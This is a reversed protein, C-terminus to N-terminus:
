FYPEDVSRSCIIKAPQGYALVKEPLDQLLLSGAGLVTDAGVNVGQVITAGLGIFSRRGIQVRGGTTVGPALSAGEALNSEHDLSAKTNMLSCADLRCGAMIVAGPMVVVGEDLVVDHALEASPHVVAPFCVGPQQSRIENMIRLRRYNDGIAMVWDAQPHLSYIEPLKDLGGLLSVGALMQGPEIGDAVLGAVKCGIDQLLGLVSRAHGGAGVVVV